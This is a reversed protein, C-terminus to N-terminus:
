GSLRRVVASLFEALGVRTMDFGSRGCWGLGVGSLVLLLGVLVVQVPALLMARPVEEGKLMVTTQSATIPDTRRQRTTFSLLTVSDGSSEINGVIVENGVVSGVVDQTPDGGIQGVTAYEIGLDNSRSAYFSQPGTHGLVMLVGLGGFNLGPGVDRNLRGEEGVPRYGATLPIELAGAFLHPMRSPIEGAAGFLLLGCLTFINLWNGKM